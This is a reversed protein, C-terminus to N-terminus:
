SFKETSNEGEEWRERKRESNLILFFKFDVVERFTFDPFWSVSFHHFIDMAEKSREFESGVEKGHM